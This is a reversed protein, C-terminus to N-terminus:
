VSSTSTHPCLSKRKHKSLSLMVWIKNINLLGMKRVGTTVIGVSTSNRCYCNKLDKKNIMTVM